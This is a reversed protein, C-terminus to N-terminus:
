PLILMVNYGSCSSVFVVLSTWASEGVIGFCILAGVPGARYLAFGFGYFCGAGIISSLSILSVHRGMLARKLGDEIVITDEQIRVADTKELGHKENVPTNSATGPFSPSQEKSSCSM